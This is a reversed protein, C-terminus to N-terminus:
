YRHILNTTWATLSSWVDNGNTWTMTVALGRSASALLGLTVVAAILLPTSKRLIRTVLQSQTM